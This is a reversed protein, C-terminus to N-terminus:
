EGSDDPRRALFAETTSQPTAYKKAIAQASKVAQAATRLM